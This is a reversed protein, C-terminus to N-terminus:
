MNTGFKMFILSTLIKQQNPMLCVDLVISCMRKNYMLLCNLALTLVFAIDSKNWHDEHSDDGIM